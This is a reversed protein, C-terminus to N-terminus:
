KKCVKRYILENALIRRKADPTAMITGDGRAQVVPQYVQCFSDIQNVTLCYSILIGFCMM